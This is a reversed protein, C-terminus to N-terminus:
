QDAIYLNGRSAQLRKHIAEQVKCKFWMGVDLKPICWAELESILSTSSMLRWRGWPHSYHSLSTSGWSWKSISSKSRSWFERCAQAHMLQVVNVCRDTMSSFASLGTPPCQNWVDLDRLDVFFLLFYTVLRFPAYKLTTQTLAMRLSMIWSSRRAM